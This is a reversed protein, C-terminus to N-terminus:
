QVTVITGIPTMPYVVQANAPPMEVCGVSQPWGYSSRDFGHLADSGNFYSVWPINPDSYKTGDPNTGSMTTSLYRLYVTFTGQQTPAAAVGTNALTHYALAGNQYVTVTQPLSESVLVFPYAHPDAQGAAAAQLLDAWVAAGAQGDTKLGHQDEFAMVASKTIINWTGPTWLSVLQTPQNPWRWAFSGQQPELEQIPSTPQTTPNFTVPLYGLEALLQQLRLTSGQEVTFPVTANQALTQGQASRMGQPGGPITLTEAVGPVFPGAAIFELETPSLPAWAGPVGPSLTPMPSDPALATSLQVTIASGAQVNSANAAPTTSVISLPVIPAPKAVAAPQVTAEHDARYLVYGGTGAGALMIGVAALIWPTRRHRNVVHAPRKSM